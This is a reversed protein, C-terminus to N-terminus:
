PQEVFAEFTLVAHSTLGDPDRFVRNERSELYVLANSSLTIETDVLAARVADSLDHVQPFGLVRSWCDLDFFVQFGDICDANDTIEQWNAFGVFPFTASVDGATSRPVHDYIRQGVIATVAGTSKLRSVIAGQLEKAPSTM